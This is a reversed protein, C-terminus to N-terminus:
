LVQGPSLSGRRLDDVVFQRKSGVRGSRGRGRERRRNGRRKRQGGKGQERPRKWGSTGGDDWDEFVREM